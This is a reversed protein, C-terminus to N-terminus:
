QARGAETEAAAAPSPLDRRLRVRFTTGVDPESDVSVEGEYLGILKKLISLGLGSGLIGKTKQNKIRVFEGFLREVEEASMGIGTDRVEIDCWRGDESTALRFSVHGQDRNYKVANSVLNNMIIELEGADAMMPALTGDAGGAVETEIVIGRKDADPQMTEVVQAAVALVDVEVLSRQKQGSEIRTLDLLDGILKRMGELRTLSRDIPMAYASIDSGLAKDRAIGLYGEIAALPAKLEHALVRTFEFRVRRQAEALRRAERSLLLHKAAKRATHRLDRPTFPKPLFDYAGRRTAVVATEISAYATIMITLMDLDRDELAELAELVDLGSMGPLKHDLLLLDPAQAAIAELGAEGTEAEQVEVRVEADLDDWRWEKGHIARRVGSRMGPEDDIVLVRFIDM